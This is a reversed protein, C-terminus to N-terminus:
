APDLLARITVIARRSKGDPDQVQRVGDVMLDVFVWPGAIPPLPDPKHLAMKIASAINAAEDFGPARSWVHLDIFAEVADEQCDAGADATVVSDIRVWPFPLENAPPPEGYIKQGVLATVRADAILTARVARLFAISPDGVSDRM